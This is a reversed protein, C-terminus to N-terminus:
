INGEKCNKLDQLIQSELENLKLQKVPTQKARWENLMKIFEKSPILCEGTGVKSYYRDSFELIFDKYESIIADSIKKGTKLMTEMDSTIAEKQKESILDNMKTHRVGTKPGMGMIMVATQATNAAMEMDASIGWSGQMNYIVNEASHGGYDCIIDSMIREFSYEDNESDKFYMAGGYDGRPDLTIFDVKKPLHWPIDQKKAIEYMLHLTLAHGAEHSAVIKKKPTSMESTNTRGTITQLLAETFDAGDIASKEREQSIILANDLMYMLDVISFGQTSESINRLIEERETDNGAIKSNNKQVYYDIVERRQDADQPQYVVVQKLFKYPKAVNEDLTEPINMSGIVVLNVKGEKRIAEMESLLQSFAKQEYISSIGYLPNSAFNDFNEIYLM